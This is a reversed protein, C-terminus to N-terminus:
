GRVTAVRKGRQELLDMLTAADAPACAMGDNNFFIYVDDVGLAAIRDAWTRLKARTYCPHM